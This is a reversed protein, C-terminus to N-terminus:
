KTCYIEMLSGQGFYSIILSIPAILIKSLNSFALPHLKKKTKDVLYFKLSGDFMYPMDYIRIRGIKFKLRKLLMSINKSNYHYVHRPLDYGYWNEKFINKWLSNTNPITITLKGGPKLWGHCKKLLLEQDPVHELVEKVIIQDFSNKKYPAKHIFEKIIGLKQERLNIKPIYPELGYTDMGYKQFIELKMGNGCGIELISKGKQFNYSYFIPEFAKLIFTFFNNKKSHYYASIKHYFTALNNYNYFSYYDKPYYDELQKESLLPDTIELSCDACRIISFKGRKFHDKDQLNSYIKEFVKGECCICKKM